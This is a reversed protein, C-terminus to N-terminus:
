NNVWTPAALNRMEGNIEVQFTEEDLVIQDTTFTITPDPDVTAPPDTIVGSGDTGGGGGCASLM